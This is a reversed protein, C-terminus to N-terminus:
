INEECAKRCVDCCSCVEFHGNVEKQYRCEQVYGRAGCHCNPPDVRLSLWRFLTGLVLRV